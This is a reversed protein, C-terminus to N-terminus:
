SKTPWSWPMKESFLFSVVIAAVGLIYSVCWRRLHQILMPWIKSSRLRSDPPDVVMPDDQIQACELLGELGTTKEPAFFRQPRLWNETETALNVKGAFASSSVPNTPTWDMDESNTEQKIPSSAKLSPHGFVPKHPNIIIPKSSLSLTALLDNEPVGAPLNLPPAPHPTVSRSAPTGSRFNDIKHTSTDVLRISPPQHIRLVAASGSLSQHIFM